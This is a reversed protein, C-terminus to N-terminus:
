PNETMAKAKEWMELLEEENKDKLTVGEDTAMKEVLAFRTCFKKNAKHLAEESDVDALRATNVVALFLDGAEEEIHEYNGEKIAARLEVIEEEAKDLADLASAFDFNYKAAKQGIKHARVLAPLASSISEISEMATKNGKTQQKIAEWNSLVEGTSSVTIDGFVHPHRVILKTCIGTIVDDVCFGGNAASISSHLLTQLMVDGLEECLLEPAETDIAEAAEYAEEIMNKRISKHTQERDWPCGREHRLVEVILRFDDFSYASKNKLDNVAKDFDFSSM